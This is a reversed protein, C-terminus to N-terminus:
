LKRLAWLAVTGPRGVAYEWSVFRARTRAWFQDGPLPANAYPVDQCASPFIPDLGYYRALAAFRISHDGQGCVIAVNGWNLALVERAAWKMFTDTRIHVASSTPLEKRIPVGWRKLPVAHETQAFVPLGTKAWCDQVIRAIAVNSPDPLAGEEECPWRNFEVPIIGAAGNFDECYPTHPRLTFLDTILM